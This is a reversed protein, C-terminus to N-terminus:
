RCLQNKGSTNEVITQQKDRRNNEKSSGVRLPFSLDRLGKEGNFKYLRPLVILFFVFCFKLTKENVEM